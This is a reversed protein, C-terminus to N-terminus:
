RGADLGEIWAFAVAAVQILEKRIDKGHKDYAEGGADGRELVARAVEGVEEVLVALRAPNPMDDACTKSFRGEAKMRDQRAREDSIAEHIDARPLVVPYTM